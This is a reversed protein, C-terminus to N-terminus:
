FFGMPSLLPGAVHLSYEMSRRFAFAWFPNITPVIQRQIGYQQIGDKSAATLELTALNLM